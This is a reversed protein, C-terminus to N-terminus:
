IGDEYRLGMASMIDYVTSEAKSKLIKELNKDYKNSSINFKRQFEALFTLVIMALDSKFVGYPYPIDIYKEEIEEKSLDTLGIYINILNSIGPQKEPDFKVMNESDTIASMIKKYAVEPDDFLFICGNDGNSKSMKNSPNKLDKIKPFKGIVGKPKNIIGEGFEREFSKILDNLLHIHSLQDEGILINDIGYLLCDAAMLAPYTLLSVRTEKGKKQKYQIQNRLEWDKSLYEMIYGLQNHEPIHSQIFFNLGYMNFIKVLEITHKRVDRSSAPVTFAHMDAIFMLVNTTNSMEIAPKIVGLYNGITLEGTPKIGSLYQFNLKELQNNPNRM